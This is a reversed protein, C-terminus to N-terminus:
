GLIDGLTKVLYEIDKLSHLETVCFLAMKKHAEDSFFRSLPLGGLIGRKLLEKHIMTYDTDFGVTFEKFFEADYYPAKVGKLENLLKATYHSKLWITEALERLGERGLLTLYVASAIAFLSKNTTINSTAKERRIHQERTQLIMTYGREKTKSRTLGILRGPLQRILKRDWRVAMIGLTAGGYDLGLGLPQGEGVAIDAGYAGPPKIIGLSLPEFGVIFLAGKKHSLDAIYEADDEITGYFSPIEVYVAATEEDIKNELDKKDIVGKEKHTRVTTPKVNKGLLWTDIVKRREPHINDAVVVKRRRTVRIAMLLAEAAATAMDYLSANAVDLEVLDAILSQYEFLAQLLGQNVEPQYPTYATYFESRMVINIVAKPVHHLCVGGGMF